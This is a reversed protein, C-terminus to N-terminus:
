RLGAYEKEGVMNTMLDAKCLYAALQLKSTDTLGFMGASSAALMKLREMKEYMTGLGTIFVAEKLRPVCEELPKKLDEKYFFEADNLRAFLVKSHRPAVKASLKGEGDMVNVFRNTFDGQFDSVAFYRQHERMATIIVEKPLSLYRKDFEGKMVAPAEVSSALMELLGPDPIIKLGSKVLMASAKEMILAKRKEQELIIGNKEMIEFYEAADRVAVTKGSAAFKHLRTLNGSKLGAFSFVVPKGALMCLICRVPRAFTAGTDNWIMSKPFRIGAIIGPLSEELIKKLTLGKEFMSAFLYKQGKEDKIKVDKEALSNKEVFARGIDTLSGDRYAMDYRPGKKEYTRDPQRIDVSKFHAVLRRVTYYSDASAFKINKEALLAKIDEVLQTAAPKLYDAPLEETYIELLLDRPTAPQKKIRNKKTM